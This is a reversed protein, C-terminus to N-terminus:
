EPTSVMAAVAKLCDDNWQQKYEVNHTEEGYM